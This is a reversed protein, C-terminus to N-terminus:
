EGNLILKLNDNKQFCLKLFDIHTLLSRVLSVVNVDQNVLITSTLGKWRCELKTILSSPDEFGFRILLLVM